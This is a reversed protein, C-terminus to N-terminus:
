DYQEGANSLLREIKELLDKMRFPKEIFDEAGANLAMKEIHPSASFIIIPINKSAPQKKLYRCIDLGSVGSLQKDLIFLDPMEYRDKLLDNGNTFVVPEYGTHELMIRMADVIAPDDDMILIRKKDTM